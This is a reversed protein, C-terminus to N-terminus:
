SVWLVEEEVSRIGTRVAVVGVESPDDNEEEFSDDDIDLSRDSYSVADAVVVGGITAFSFRTGVRIMDAISGPDPSCDDQIVAATYIGAADGRVIAYQGM